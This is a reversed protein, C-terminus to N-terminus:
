NSFLYYPHNINYTAYVIFALILFVIIIAIILVAIAFDSDFTEINIPSPPLIPDLSGTFNFKVEDNGIGNLTLATLNENLPISSDMRKIAVFLQPNTRSRISISNDSNLVIDWTNIIGKDASTLILKTNNVQSSVTLVSESFGTLYLHKKETDYTWRDILESSTIVDIEDIFSSPKNQTSILVSKNSQASLEGLSLISM